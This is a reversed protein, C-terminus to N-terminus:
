DINVNAGILYGIRSGFEELRMVVETKICNDSKLISIPITLLFYFFGILNKIYEISFFRKKQISALSEGGKFSRWFRYSVRM